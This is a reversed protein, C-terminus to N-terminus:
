QLILRGQFYPLQVNILSWVGLGYIMLLVMVMAAGQWRRPWWALWGWMLLLSTPLIAVYFYRATPLYFIRGNIGVPDIRIVSMLLAAGLIALLFVVSRWQWGALAQTRWVRLGGYLAGVLAALTFLSSLLIGGIPLGAIGNGFASWFSVFQWRIAAQYLGGTHPWDYFSLLRVNIGGWPFFQNIQPRVVLWGDAASGNQILNTFQVNNWRGTKGTADAFQPPAAQSFDGLALVVGSYQLTLGRAGPMKIILRQSDTPVDLAYAYFKWAPGVAVKQAEGDKTAEFLLPLRVLGAQDARLWVGLTVRQGRVQALTQADLAQWFAVQQNSTQRLEFVETESGPGTATVRAVESVPGDVQWHAPLHWDLCLALVGVAAACLGVRWWVSLRPWLALGLGVGMLPLGIFATSKVAVCAATALLLGVIRKLDIGSRILTLGTAALLSMALVAGVDNNLATMLDSYGTIVGLLATAGAALVGRGPFLTQSVWWTLVAVLLALVASIFRAVMVQTTVGAPGILWQGLAQLLYYGPVEGFQLGSPTCNQSNSAQASCVTVGTRALIDPATDSATPLRGHEVIFRLLEYHTPEDYHQWLPVVALRVISQSAVVALALLFLWRDTKM